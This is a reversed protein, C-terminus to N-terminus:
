NCYLGSVVLPPVAVLGAAGVIYAFASAPRKGWLGGLQTVDQTISNWVIAGVSMVLLAMAVAYTLM